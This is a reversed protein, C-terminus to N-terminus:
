EEVPQTGAVDALPVFRVKCVMGPKVGEQEPEVLVKVAFFGSSSDVYPSVVSVRGIFKEEGIAPFMVEAKQGVAVRTTMCEDLRVRAEIVAPDIVEVLHQGVQAMEGPEVWLESIVGDIPSRIIYNRAQTELYELQRTALLRTRELEALAIEASRKRFLAQDVEEETFGLGVGAEERRRYERGYFEVETKAMQIRAEFDAEVQQVAIRADILSSDFRILVDGKRVSQGEVVEVSAVSEDLESSMLVQVHPVSTTPWFRDCFDQGTSDPQQAAGIVTAVACLLVVARIYKLRCM